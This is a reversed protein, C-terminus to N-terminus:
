GFVAAAVPVAAGVLVLAPPPSATEREHEEFTLFVAVDLAAAALTTTGAIALVARCLARVRARRPTFAWPEVATVGDVALDVAAGEVSAWGSAM